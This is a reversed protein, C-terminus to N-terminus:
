ASNEGRTVDEESTSDGHGEKWVIFGIPVILRDPVTKNAKQWEDQPDVVHFL